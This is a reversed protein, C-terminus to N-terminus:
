GRNRLYVDMSITASISRKSDTNKTLTLVLTVVHNDASISAQFDSINQAFELMSGSVTTGANNRVSRYFKKSADMEYQVTKYDITACVDDADMCSSTICGYTLPAGWYAVDGNTDMISNGSHCIVPMSFRLLDSGNAGGGNVITVQVVGNKDIGSERLEKSVRELVQRANQQLQIQTDTSLWSDRGSSLTSFVGAMLMSTVLLAVMMEVLTMGQRNLNKPKTIFM